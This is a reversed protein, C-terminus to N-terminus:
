DLSSNVARKLSALGIEYQYQAQVASAEASLLSTQAVLLELFTAVNASYRKKALRINENSFELSQNALVLNSEARKLDAFSQSVEAVIGERERNLFAEQEDVRAALEESRGTTKLGDFLNWTITLGAGYSEAIVPAYNPLYQGYFATLGLVPLYSKIESHFSMQAAEFSYQSQKMEPRYEIAKSILSDLNLKATPVVKPAATEKLQFSVEKVMGMINLLSIRAIDRADIANVLNLKAQAVEVNAQSLDFSPRTGTRVFVSTRRLTEEFRVVGEEAVDVLKEAILTSFFARQAALDITNHLALAQQEASHTSAQAEGIDNLVKGFDFVTQTITAVLNSYPQMVGLQATTGPNPLTTQQFGGTLDLRPLYGSIAQMIRKSNADYNAKAAKLDPNQKEALKRVDELSWVFQVPRSDHTVIKVESLQKKAQAEAKSEKPAKLTSLTDESAVPTPAPAPQAYAFATLILFIFMGM